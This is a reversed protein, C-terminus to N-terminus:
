RPAAVKTIRRDAALAQPFWRVGPPFAPRWLRWMTSLWSDLAREIPGWPLGLEERLPAPLLGTAPVLLPTLASRPALRLVGAVALGRRGLRRAIAGHEVLPALPPHLIAWALERSVATPHVPGDPGLMSAVYAEFAGLDAPLMAPPVGFGRGVVLTEAYFRARRERPVPGLWAEVTRLTAWVLTAHVWLSLGPDRAEYSRGLRAAADPDSVPGAVTVHLRNLRQIESRAAARDGYVIRLYSRLTGELRSWPDTTFTSHQAVGEAVLPHAIQLLVALPGAGLLLAAERNLRWAESDPGYLGDIERTDPPLNGAELGHTPSGLPREPAPRRGM